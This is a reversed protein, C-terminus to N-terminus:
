LREALAVRSHDARSITSALQPPLLKDAAEPTGVDDALQFGREELYEPLQAPDWSWKFPEGLRAAAIRVLRAAISRQQGEFKAQYTMALQSGRCSYAAIARLSADIAPETLYMTVGEWITLSPAQADHGADALAEPLEDMARTEFDWTV